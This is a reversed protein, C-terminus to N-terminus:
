RKRKFGRSKGGFGGFLSQSPNERAEKMYLKLEHHMFKRLWVDYMMIAFYIDQQSQSLDRVKREVVAKIRKSKAEKINKKLRKWTGVDKESLQDTNEELPNRYLLNAWIRDLLTEWKGYNGNIAEGDVKAWLYNLRYILGWSTDAQPVYDDPM